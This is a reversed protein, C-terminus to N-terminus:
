GGGLLRTLADPFLILTLVVGGIAGGLHADHGIRSEGKMALTSYAIYGVAFVVAPVPIAFFLYLLSFPEFVCYSLLIGSIAGSAGAASYNLEHRKTYLPLASAIVKSGFYIIAFNMTGVMYELIPGFFYLTFMNLLLHGMDVHLFGSTVMRYYQKQQLIAGIHFINDAYFQRNVQLAYLSIAVNIFILSYALPAAALEIM